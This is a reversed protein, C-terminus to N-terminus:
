KACEGNEGGQENRQRSGEVANKRALSHGDGSHQNTDAGQQKAAVGGQRLDEDRGGQGGEGGVGGKAGLLEQAVAGHEEARAGDVQAGVRDRGVASPDDLGGAIEAVLPNEVFVSRGVALAGVLVFSGMGHQDGKKAVFGLRKPGVVGDDDSPDGGREVATLLELGKRPSQTGDGFLKEDGKEGGGAGVGLGLHAPEQEVGDVEGGATLGEGSGAKGQEGGQEGGEQQQEADRGGCGGSRRGLGLGWPPGFEPNM